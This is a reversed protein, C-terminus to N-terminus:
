KCQMVNCPKVDSIIYHSLNDNGSGFSGYPQNRGRNVKSFITPSVSSYALVNISQHSLFSSPLTPIWQWASISAFMWLYEPSQSWIDSLSHIYTYGWTIHPYLSYTSLLSQPTCFLLFTCQWINITQLLWFIWSLQDQLLLCWILFHINCLYILTQLWTM